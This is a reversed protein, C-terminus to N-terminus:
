RRLSDFLAAQRRGIAKWDFDREVTIRAKEEIAEREGPNTLLRRIAAAFEAPTTAVLVDQGDTLDLGNIGAPTSVIAKRMAMAEMIKINTGASAVLPAIVVAAQEYAPRVDSVFGEVEMGARALDLTVSDKYREQFYTHRNGAIIHLVPQLDELLPWAQRLFWDLAMMNPLHQFAGIFLLRRPDPQRGTTQFRELDV